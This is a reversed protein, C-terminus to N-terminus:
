RDLLKNYQRLSFLPISTQTNKNLDGQRMFRLKRCSGDRDHDWVVRGTKRNSGRLAVANCLGDGDYHCVTDMNTTLAVLTPDRVIKSTEATTSQVTWLLLAAVTLTANLTLWVYLRGRNVKARVIPESPITTVTTNSDAVQVVLASRTTHYAM